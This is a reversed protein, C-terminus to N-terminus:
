IVLSQLAMVHIIKGSSHLCCGVRGTKKGWGGGVALNFRAHEFIQCVDGSPCSRIMEFEVKTFSFEEEVQSLSGQMSRDILTSSTMTDGEDTALFRPMIRLLLSDKVGLIM